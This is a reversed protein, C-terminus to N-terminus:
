SEPCNTESLLAGTRCNDRDTNTSISPGGNQDTKAGGVKAGRTRFEHRQIRLAVAKGETRVVRGRIVLKLPCVDDLLFPWHVLLEIEARPPPLADNTEFLVGRTSINRTRGFGARGVPSGNLLRYEIELRIPYRFHRRQDFIRKEFLLVDSPAFAMGEDGERESRTSLPDTAVVASKRGPNM